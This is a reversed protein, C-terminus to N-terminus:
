RTRTVVVCGDSTTYKERRGLGEIAEIDASEFGNEESFFDTTLEIREAPCYVPSLWCVHFNMTAGIM